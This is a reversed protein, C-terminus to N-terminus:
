SVQKQKTNNAFQINKIKRNCEAKLYYTKYTSNNTVKTYLRPKIRNWTLTEYTNKMFGMAEENILSEKWSHQTFFTGV